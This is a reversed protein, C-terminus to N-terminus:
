LVFLFLFLPLYDKLEAKLKKYAIGMQTEVTNISINLEEAIQKQKKGELKNMIFIQRCRESLSNIARSIIQETDHESFVTQGFAELSDLHMQLTIAYEEQLRNATKRAIMRHRLCNLSRNKVATFLFAILNTYNMFVLRKEWLEMFVDQVINEADEDSIVYEQAFHKMKSFYTLYIKEFDFAESEYRLEEIQSNKM